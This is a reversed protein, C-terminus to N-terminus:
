VIIKVGSGTPNEKILDRITIYRGGSKEIKTKASESFSFAAITLKHELSGTGLVKGPVVVIENEKSYRSIKSLNVQPTASRPKELIEAVYAWINVRKERAIKKLLRIIAIKDINTIREYKKPM